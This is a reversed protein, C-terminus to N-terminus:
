GDAGLTVTAAGGPYYYARDLRWAEGVEGSSSSEIRDEGAGPRADDPPEVSLHFRGIPLADLVGEFRGPAVRDLAVVRDEDARTAHRLRLLLEPLRETRPGRLIVIARGQDPDLDLRAVIGLRRAAELRELSRNITVGEDYWHTAVLPDRGRYALVVTALSGVVSVGLLSVIFWPWAHRYWPLGDGDPSSV